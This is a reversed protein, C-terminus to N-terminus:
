AGLGPRGRVVLLSSPSEGALREARMGLLQPALEWDENAGLVVLDHAGAEALVADVPSATRIVRVEPGSPVPAAPRPSAGPRQVDLVTLQARQSQV